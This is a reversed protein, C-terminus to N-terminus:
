GHLRRFAAALGEAKDRDMATLERCVHPHFDDKPRFNELHRSQIVMEVLKAGGRHRGLVTVREGGDGWMTAGIYVKTGPSFHRLGSEPKGGEPGVMTARKVNAVVYWGSM